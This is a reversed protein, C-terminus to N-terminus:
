RSDTLHECPQIMITVYDGKTLGMARVIPKPIVVAISQNIKFAKSCFKSQDVM